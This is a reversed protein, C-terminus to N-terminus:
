AINLIGAHVKRHCNACLVVCKAIEKQILDYSSTEAINREKDKNPHHFDLCAIEKEPCLLCGNLKANKKIDRIKARREKTRVAYEEKHQLYYERNKRKHCEPTSPM